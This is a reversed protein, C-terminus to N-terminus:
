KYRLHIMEIKKTSTTHQVHVLLYYFIKIWYNFAVNKYLYLPVVEQNLINGTDEEIWWDMSFGTELVPLHNMDADYLYRKYNVTITKEKNLGFRLTDNTIGTNEYMYVVTDYRGTLIKINEEGHMREKLDM